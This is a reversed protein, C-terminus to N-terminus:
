RGFLNLLLRLSDHSVTPPNVVKFAAFSYRRFSSLECRALHLSASSLFAVKLGVVVRVVALTRRMGTVPAVFM